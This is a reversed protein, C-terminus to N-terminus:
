GARSKVFLGLPTVQSPVADPHMDYTHDPEPLALTGNPQVRGGLLLDGGAVLVLDGKLVSDVVPGTRYVTTHFRYDPGLESFATGAVFVKVASAPQFLQDSNISYIVQKADPFYFKMGWRANHFEPRRMIEQIRADLHATHTKSPYAITGTRNPADSTKSSKPIQNSTPAGQLLGVSFFSCALFASFGFLRPCIM